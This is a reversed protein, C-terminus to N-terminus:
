VRAVPLRVPVHTRSHDRLLQAHRADKKVAALLYRDRHQLEVVDLNHRMARDLLAAVGRNLNAGPRTLDFVRRPRHPPMERHGRDLRLAPHRFEVDTGVVQDLDAGLNGGIMVHDTLEDIDGSGRDAAPELADDLAVMEAAAACRVAGRKAVAAMAGGSLTLIWALNEFALLHGPM